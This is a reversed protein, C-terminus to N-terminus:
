KLLHKLQRRLLKLAQSINNKVTQLGIQQEKAAEKLTKAELYVAVFSRRCSPPLTHIAQLLQKALETNELQYRFTNFTFLQRYNNQRTNRVQKKKINAVSEYRVARRLYAKLDLDNSLNSKIRWLNIFVHQVVDEAEDQDNLVHTAEKLLTPKLFGIIEKLAVKDGQKLNQLLIHKRTTHDKKVM